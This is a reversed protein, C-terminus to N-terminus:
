FGFYFFVYNKPKDVLPRVYAPNAERKDIWAKTYIDRDCPEKVWDQLREAWYLQVRDAWITKPDEKILSYLQRM